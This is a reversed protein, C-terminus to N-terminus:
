FSAGIGKLPPMAGNFDKGGTNIGSVQQVDIGGNLLAPQIAKVQWFSSLLKADNITIANMNVFAPNINIGAILGNQLEQQKLNAWTTFNTIGSVNFVDSLSWWCNGLYKGTISDGSIIQHSGVLINNYFVFGENTSQSSYSIAANRDNYITNNYIFCNTLKHDYSANWIYIGAKAASTNGDNISINYRITNNRWPSANNYEFLGIGSGHNEYSLCYQIVSNTIGGDFDFGGGDEGGSSTKNRYSLCHGIIVSDAEWAWIGVPGNGIRPMDWGNNTATCYEIKVNTCQSVIIGNGSHNNLRTPDGPNNEARCYRLIINKSDTKSFTEGDVSIGAYGNDHAFVNQVVMDSVNRLLLGSKQYGTIELSDISINHCYAISVGDTTNGNKRGAGTVKINRLQIHRSNNIVLGKENGSNITAMGSGYAAIVVPKDASGETNYNIFLTGSFSQGALLLVSDGAHLTLSKIKSINKWPQQRSGDNNDDGGNSIFYARSAVTTGAGQKNMEAQCSALMVGSSIFLATLWTYSFINMLLLKIM